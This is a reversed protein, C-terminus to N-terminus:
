RIKVSCRSHELCLSSPAIISAMVSSIKYYIRDLQGKKNAPEVNVSEILRQNFISPPTEVMACHTLSGTKGCSCSLDSGHSWNLGQSPFKM